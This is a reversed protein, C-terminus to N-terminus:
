LAMQFKLYPFFLCLLSIFNCPKLPFLCNTIIFLTKNSFAAFTINLIPLLHALRESLILSVKLTM